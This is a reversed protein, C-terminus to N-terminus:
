RKGRTDKMDLINKLEEIEEHTLKAEKVFNMLFDKSSGQFIKNIFYKKEEHLAEKKEILPYYLYSNGQISYGIVEKKLLRNILSKVTAKSWEKDDIIEVIQKSLLPSKEWLVEMVKWESDSIRKNM